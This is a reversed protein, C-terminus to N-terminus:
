TDAASPLRAATVPLASALGSGSEGRAAGCLRFSALMIRPASTM